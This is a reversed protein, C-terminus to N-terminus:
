KKKVSTRRNKSWCDENHESCVPKEFGYTVTKLQGASAGLTELYKEVVNARRDGLALNYEETGREDANGELIVKLSQDGRLCRAMRALGSKDSDKLDSKDFDFHVRFNTCEALGLSIPVCKNRICLESADCEEDRTCTREAPAAPPPAPKVPEAKVESTEVKKAEQHACGALVVALFWAWRQTTKM